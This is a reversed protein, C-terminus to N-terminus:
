MVAMYDRLVKAFRESGLRRLKGFRLTWSMVNLYTCSRILRM